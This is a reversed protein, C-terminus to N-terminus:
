LKIWPITTNSNAGIIKLLYYGPKLKHVDSRVVPDTSQINRDIFMRGSVAIVLLRLIGTQNFNVIVLEDAVPNSQLYINSTVDSVKFQITKSLSSRGDIDTQRIRYFNIGMVPKADSFTYLLRGSATTLGDTNSLIGKLSFQVGDTSHEIEFHDNNVVAEVEWKLEARNNKVEGTFSLWHLPLIIATVQYYNYLNTVETSSLVRNYVIIDDLSGTYVGTTVCPNTGLRISNPAILAASSTGTTTAVQVGEMYLIIVATSKN